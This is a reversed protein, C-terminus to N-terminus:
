REVKLNGKKMKEGRNELKMYKTKNRHIITRNRNSYGNIKKNGSGYEKQKKRLVEDNAYALCEYSKNFVFGKRNIESESLFNQRVM